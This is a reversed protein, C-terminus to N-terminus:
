SYSIGHKVRGRFSAQVEALDYVSARFFFALCKRPLCCGQKPTIPFGCRSTEPREVKQSGNSYTFWPEDEFSALVQVEIFRPTLLGVM